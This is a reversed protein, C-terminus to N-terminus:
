RKKVLFSTFIVIFIGVINIFNIQEDFIFFGFIVSFIIRTYSLIVVNKTENEKYSETNFYQGLLAALTILLYNIIQMNPEFTIKDRFILFFIMSSMVSHYLLITKTEERKSLYSISVIGGSVCISSFLAMYLGIQSNIEKANTILLIGIFGFFILILTKLNLKERFILSSIFCTFFVKSFGITSAQALTLYLLSKYGFYMASVGCLCRFIHIRLNNTALFTFVSKKNISIILLLIIAGFFSRFFVINEISISILSKKILVGLLAFFFCSIIQYYAKIKIM